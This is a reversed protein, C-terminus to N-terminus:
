KSIFRRPLRLISLGLFRLAIGFGTAFDALAINRSYHKKYFIYMSRHHHFFSRLPRTRSSQGIAHEVEAAPIYWTRWGRRQLRWCLDVDEVYMFFRPDFGPPDIAALAKRRILMAAGSVWDVRDIENHHWSTRLYADSYKNFPLLKTLLSYRHFLATTHTPFARCSLQVSGDANLLRPAAIAADPTEDLFAALAAIAGPRIRTDPNLIFFYRGRAARFAQNMAAGFGANRSNEVLRLDPGALEDRIFAATGDTSANDVIIIELRPGQQARLSEVCRAIVSRSNFTVICASVAPTRQENNTTLPPTDNTMQGQDNTVQRRDNTMPGQDNTTISHNGASKETLDSIRFRLDLIMGDSIAGDSIEKQLQANSRRNRFSEGIFFHKWYYLAASKLHRFLARNIGRASSRQVKHVICPHPLYVIRWGRQKARFCWDVDDFYYFRPDFNGVDRVTAARMVFCAGAMWDIDFVTDTDADLMLSRREWPNGPWLRDIGPLRRMLITPITYFRRFSRELSGDPRQTKGGLGGVDPNADMFDVIADFAGPLVETDNDLMLLYRGRAARIGVCRQPTWGFEGHYDIVRVQPYHERTWHEIADESPKNVFIVEFTCRWPQGYITPLCEKVFQGFRWNIIVISLDVPSPGPTHPTPKTM